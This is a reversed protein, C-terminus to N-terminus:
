DILIRYLPDGCARARDPNPMRDKYGADVASDPKDFPSHGLKSNHFNSSCMGHWVPVLKQDQLDLFNFELEAAAILVVDTDLVVARRQSNMLICSLLHYM